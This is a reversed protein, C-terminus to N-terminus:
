GAEFLSGIKMDAHKMDCCCDCQCEYNRGCEGCEHLRRYLVLRDGKVSETDTSILV